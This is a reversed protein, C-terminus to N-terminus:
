VRAHTTVLQTLSSDTRSRTSHNAREGSVRTSDLTSQVHDSGILGQYIARSVRAASPVRADACLGGARMEFCEVRVDLLGDRVLPAGVLSRPAPIADAPLLLELASDGTM